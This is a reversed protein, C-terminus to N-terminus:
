RRGGNGGSFGVVLYGIIAGAVVIIPIVVALGYASWGIQFISEATANAEPYLTDDINPIAGQFTTLIFIGIVLVAVTVILSIVMGVSARKNRRLSRKM